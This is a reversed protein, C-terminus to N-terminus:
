ANIVGDWSDGKLRNDEAWLPRLNELAWCKKFDECDTTTFNFSSVPRIHDIHWNGTFNFQEKCDKWVMNEKFQSELHQKLEEKTYGLLEFLKTEPRTGNISKVVRSSINQSIKQHPNNDLWTNWTKRKKLYQCTRSCTYKNGVKHFEKNCIECPIIQKNKEHKDQTAKVSICEKSCTIKNYINTLFSTSCIVCVREEKERTPKPNREEWYKKLCKNSCYKVESRKSPTFATGCNLCDKPLIPNAALWKQHRVKNSCTKSCYKGINLYSDYPKECYECDKTIYKKGNLKKVLQTNKLASLCKRSCFRSNSRYAKFSNSCWECDKFVEVKPPERAKRVQNKNVLKCEKSCTTSQIHGIYAKQCIICQRDQKNVDDYKNRLHRTKDKWRKKTAQSAERKAPDQMRIALRRKSQEQQCEKSCCVECTKPQFGTNCIVCNKKM